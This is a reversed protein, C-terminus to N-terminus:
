AVRPVDDVTCFPTPPNRRRSTLAGGGTTGIFSNKASPLKPGRDVGNVCQGSPWASRAAYAPLRPPRPLAPHKQSHQHSSSSSPMPQFRTSLAYPHSHNDRSASCVEGTFLRKSTHLHPSNVLSLLRSVKNHPVRHTHRAYGLTQSLDVTSQMAKTSCLLTPNCDELFM